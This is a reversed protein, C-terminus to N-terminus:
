RDSQFSYKTTLILLSCSGLLLHTSSVDKLPKYDVPDLLEKLKGSKMDEPSIKIGLRHSCRQVVGVAELPSLELQSFGQFILFSSVQSTGTSVQTKGSPTPIFIFNSFMNTSVIKKLEQQYMEENIQLLWDLKDEEADVPLPTSFTPPQSAEMASPTQDKSTAM